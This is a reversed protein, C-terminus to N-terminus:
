FSHLSNGLYKKDKAPINIEDLSLSFYEQKEGRKERLEIFKIFERM